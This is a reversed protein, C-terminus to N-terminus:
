IYNEFDAATQFALNCLFIFDSREFKCFALLARRQNLGRDAFRQIVFVNFKYAYNYSGSSDFLIFKM